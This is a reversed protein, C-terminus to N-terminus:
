SSPAAKFMSETQRIARRWSSVSDVRLRERLSVVPDLHLKRGCEAQKDNAVAMDDEFPVIAAVTLMRAERHKRHGLTDGPCEHPDRDVIPEQGKGTTEDVHKGVADWRMLALVNGGDGDFM